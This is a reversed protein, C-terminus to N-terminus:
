VFELFAWEEPVLGFDSHRGYPIPVIKLPPKGWNCMRSIPSELRTQRDTSKSTRQQLIHLKLTDAQEAGEIVGGHGELIMSSLIAPYSNILVAEPLSM